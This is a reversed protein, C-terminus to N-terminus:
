NFSVGATLGFLRPEIFFANTFNGSSQDTSYIGTINNKDGLNQAFLRVFWNQKASTYTLQANWVGWADVRDLRRNFIRATYEDQWYYDLGATLSAGGAFTHTYQGGLSVTFQPSNPLSNGKLNVEIGDRYAYGLAPALAQLGACASFASDAVGPANAGSVATSPIYPISNAALAARLAANSSAAGQGNHILVCNSAQLDKILTTDQRGQTPDRPDITSFDGLRTHLYGLNANFLWHESPALIFEGEFGRIDANINEEVSTRNVIKSVQLGTYDYAFLSMNAQLRNGWLRNKAGIEFADIEEPQFNVPTNPFLATDIPPNIGGGKYGRSYSAYLLTEDSFSVNPAWDLVIRGTWKKFTVEAERFVQNGPTNPDADYLGLAAGAQMAESFSAVSTGGVSTAGSAVDVTLPVNLLVQRDRVFKEDVNYRWGVSLKLTDTFEYYGEGFVSRSDLEFLPTENNYFGPSLQNFTAAPTATPGAAALSFYDLGAVRVFYDTEGEFQFWSAALMFNFPGSFNSNVRAEFSTQASFEASTDEAAFNRALKFHGSALGLSREVNPVQAIPLPGGASLGLFRAAGPYVLPFAAPIRIPVADTTGNYDMESIVEIQQYAAIATLDLAESLGQKLELMVFDEGAQYSPDSFASVQRVDDPNSDPAPAAGIPNFVGLTPGLVISSSLLYGLTSLLNLSETEQSTPLCGYIGSPDNACFQKQSRTRSSDEDFTYGVVDLSANDGLEFRLSGRMSWQRRGDIDNGTFVNETYGGRELWVGAIRGAVREGLPINIAGKIRRNDFNGLQAEGDGYFRGIDARRTKMNIAGGSANRGFLTGAPGRLVELAEIDYYETEFLLPSQLYVDNVHVGVGSDASTSVSATGIGRIAFNSRSFNSKSYSVNPVNFQLDSFTDIQKDDLASADFASVAIPVEQVSEQRKQATVLTEEIQARVAPPATFVLAMLGATGIARWRVPYHKDM